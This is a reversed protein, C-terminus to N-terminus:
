KARKQNEIASALVELLRDLEEYSITLPPVMRITYEATCSVLVGRKMMEMALPRCPETMEIGIMLGLGRIEKIEPYESAVVNLRSLFYDGKKVVESILDEDVITKITALSAACVLPNGGFTSGHDGPSFAAAVQEKALVAGIPMGCGLGKALTVIDPQLNFHQFAFMKGTRGIGTQIEDVVLLIDKEHCISQVKDLFDQRAPHIGGEGQICEIFVAIADDPIQDLAETDNFPLRMFGQPLPGFDKQYKEQGLSITAISRGHFCNEFSIIPGKKGKKAGFKRAIKIAGENAELGSNCFYVRKLGSMKTLLQSLSSQPINYYINSVHILRGAQDRIAEVVKPHCHGLVNVAIGALADLYERGDDDYVKCGKGEIITLPFRRYM